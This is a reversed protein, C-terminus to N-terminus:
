ITCSLHLQAVFKSLHLIFVIWLCLLFSPFSGGFVFHCSLPSLWSQSEKPYLSSLFFLCVSKDSLCSLPDWWVMIVHTDMIASLDRSQKSRPLFLTSGFLLSICLEELVPFTLYSGTAFFILFASPFLSSRSNLVVPVTFVPWFWSGTSLPCNKLICTSRYSKWLVRGSGISFLTIFLSM